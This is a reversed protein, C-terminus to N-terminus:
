GDRKRMSLPWADTEAYLLLTTFYDCYLDNLCVHHLKYNTNDLTYQLIKYNL